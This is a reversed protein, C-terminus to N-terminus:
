TRATGNWTLGAAWAHALLRFGVFDLVLLGVLRDHFVAVDIEVLDDLVEIEGLAAPLSAAVRRPAPELPQELLLVGGLEGAIELVVLDALITSRRALRAALRAVTSARKLDGDAALLVTAPPRRRCVTSARM